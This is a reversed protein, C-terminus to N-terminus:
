CSTFELTKLDSVSIYIQSAGNAEVNLYPYLGARVRSLFARGVFVCPCAVAAFLIYHRRHDLLVVPM